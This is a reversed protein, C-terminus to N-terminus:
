NIKKGIHQRSGKSGFLMHGSRKAINPEWKFAPNPVQVRKKFYQQEVTLSLSVSIEGSEAAGSEGSGLLTSHQSTNALQM